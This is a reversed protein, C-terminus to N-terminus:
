KDDLTYPRRSESSALLRPTQENVADHRRMGRSRKPIEADGDGSPIGGHSLFGRSRLPPKIGASKLGPKADDKGGYETM